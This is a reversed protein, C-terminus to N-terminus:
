WLALVCVYCFRFGFASRIQNVEFFCLSSALPFCVCLFFGWLPVSSSCRRVGCRCVCRQRPSAPHTSCHWGRCVCPRRCPLPPRVRGLAPPAHVVRKPSPFCLFSSL